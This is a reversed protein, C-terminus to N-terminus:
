DKKFSNRFIVNFIKKGFSARKNTNIEKVRGFLTTVCVRRAHNAQWRSM